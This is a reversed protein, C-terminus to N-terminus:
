DLEAIRAEVADIQPQIKATATEVQTKIQSLKKEVEKLQENVEARKFFKYPKLEALQKQLEDYQQQYLKENSMGVVDALQKRLTLLEDQLLEKEEAASIEGSEVRARYTGMREELEKKASALRGAEREMEKEARSALAKRFTEGYPEKHNFTAYSTYVLRDNPMIGMKSRTCINSCLTVESEILGPTLYPIEALLRKWDMMIQHTQKAGQYSPMMLAAELRLSIQRKRATYIDAALDYKEEEPALGLAHKITRLIYDTDFDYLKSDWGGFKGLLEWAGRNEPEIELIKNCLEIVTKSDDSEYAENATILLASTETAGQAKKESDGESSEIMEGTSSQNEQMMTDQGMCLSIFSLCPMNKLLIAATLM